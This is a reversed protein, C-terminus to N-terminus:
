REALERDLLDRLQRTTMDVTTGDLLTVAVVDEAIRHLEAVMAWTVAWKKTM